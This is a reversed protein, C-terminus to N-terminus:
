CGCGFSVSGPNIDLELLCDISMHSIARGVAREWAVDKLDIVQIFIYFASKDCKRIASVRVMPLYTPYCFHFSRVEGFVLM